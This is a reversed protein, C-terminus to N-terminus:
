DNKHTFLKEKWNHKVNESEKPIQFIVLPRLHTRDKKHFSSEKLAKANVVSNKGDVTRIHYLITTYSCEHIAMNIIKWIKPCSVNMSLKFTHEDGWFYQFANKYLEYQHGSNEIEVYDGIMFNSILHVKRGDTLEGIIRHEM